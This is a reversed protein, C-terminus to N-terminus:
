KTKKLTALHERRLQAAESKIEVLDRKLEAWGYWHMYDPNMHFAGQFSRMRHELFMTYLKQEIPTRSEYFRLMDVNFPQDKPKSLIGEQYLSDVVLVAEAVLKDSQKIVSDAQALNQKAYSESHCKTCVEIMTNRRENWEQETLRAVQGAEVVKLRETPNGKEDLVGLGKLITLRYNLWEKDSEPLRVALFGWATKVGHDGNPMHCTQCVPARATTDSVDTTKKYMQSLPENFNWNKGQIEYITGHKSTSYMEWQPHDFGMHCTQCAEPHRAEAASFLHRTHCVDCRGDDRGVRHCGGCGKEGEIIAHPQIDTTPMADMAVWALAHKSHSFQQYQEDHCTACQKASVKRRVNKDDCKTPEDTIEKSVGAAPIHCDACAIGEQAHRSLKWDRVAGDAINRQSHCEICKKSDEPVQVKDQGTPLTKFGDAMFFLPPILLLMSIKKMNM